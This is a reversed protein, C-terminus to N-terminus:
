QQPRPDPISRHLSIKDSVHQNFGYLQYAKRVADEEHPEHKLAVGGEGPDSPNFVGM